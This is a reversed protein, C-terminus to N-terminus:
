RKHCVRCLRGGLKTEILLYQHASGHPEHCSTCSFKRGPQLPDKPGAVPHGAVPHSQSVIALGPHCSVCLENIPKHLMFEEDTAHPDHCAICGKGFIIGHVYRVPNKKDLLDQKDDHCVVCLDLSGEAWLQYRHKSGHPSHCLTCGGIM